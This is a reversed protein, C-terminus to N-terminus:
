VSSFGGFHLDRPLGEGGKVLAFPRDESHSIPLFPFLEENPLLCAIDKELFAPLNRLLESLNQPTGGLDHITEPFDLGKGMAAFALPRGGEKQSMLLFVHAKPIRLCAKWQERSRRCFSKNGAHLLELGPIDSDTAERIRHLKQGMTQSLPSSLNSLYPSLIVLKEAGFPEFGLKAYFQVKDSWLLFPPKAVAECAEIVKRGWGEGRRDPRIGVMSILTLPFRQDYVDVEVPLTAAHGLIGLQDKLFIHTGNNAEFISPIERQLSITAGPRIWSDLTRALSVREPETLEQNNLTGARVTSDLAATM